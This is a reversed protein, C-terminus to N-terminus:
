RLAGWMASMELDVRQKMHQFNARQSTVCPLLVGGLNTTVGATRHQSRGSQQSCKEKVKVKIFSELFRCNHCSALFGSPQLCLALEANKKKTDISLLHSQQILAGFLCIKFYTLYTVKFIM